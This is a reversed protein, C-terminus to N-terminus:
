ALKHMQFNSYFTVSAIVLSSLVYSNGTGDGNYAWAEVYDGAGLYVDASIFGRNNPLASQQATAIWEGVGGVVKKIHEQRVGLANTDWILNLSVHYIGAVPATLRGNNTVTDHLAGQDYTEVDWTLLAIQGGAITQYTSKRVLVAYGTLRALSLSTDIFLVDTTGVRWKLGGVSQKWLLNAKGASNDGLLVDGAGMAEGNYTQASHFIVLAATAPADVASGFLSLAQRLRVHRSLASWPSGAHTFLEFFPAGAMSASMLIGGEGSVGYNAVAQGKKWAPNSNAAYVAAQDRAVTYTPPTAATVKLWEDDIGDKIRLIDNVALTTNGLITLPSNDLASMDAALADSDLVALTGGVASLTDTEFAASKLLGRAVLNNVEFDGRATGRWGAVGAKYLESQIADRLYLTHDFSPRSSALPRLPTMEAELQGVRTALAQVHVALAGLDTPAPAGPAAPAQSGVPGASSGGELTFLPGSEGM